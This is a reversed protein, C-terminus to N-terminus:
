SSGKGVDVAIEAIKRDETRNTLAETKHYLYGEAGSKM